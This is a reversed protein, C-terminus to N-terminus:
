IFLLFSILRVLRTLNYRNSRSWARRTIVGESFKAIALVLFGICAGSCFRMLMGQYDGALRFTHLRLLIYVTLCGGAFLLYTGLKITKTAPTEDRKTAAPKNEKIRLKM